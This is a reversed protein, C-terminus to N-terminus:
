RDASGARPACRRRRRQRAHQAARRQQRLEAGQAVALFVFQQEIGGAVPQFQRGGDRRQPPLQQQRLQDPLPIAVARSPVRDKAWHAASASLRALTISSTSVGPSRDPWASLGPARWSQGLMPFADRAEQVTIRSCHGAMRAASSASLGAARRLAASRPAPRAAPLRAAALSPSRRRSSRSWERWRRNSARSRAGAAVARHHQRAQVALQVLFAPVIEIRAMRLKAQLLQQARMPAVRSSTCSQYRAGLVIRRAFRQQAFGQPGRGGGIGPARQRFVAAALDRSPKFSM